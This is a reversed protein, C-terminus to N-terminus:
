AGPTGKMARIAAARDRMAYAAAKCNQIYRRRRGWKVADDCRDAEDDCCQAADDLAKDRIVQTPGFGAIMNDIQTLLGSLDGLPRWGTNAPYHRERLTDALHLAYQYAREYDAIRPDDATVLDQQRESEPTESVDLAALVVSEGFLQSAHKVAAISGALVVCPEDPFGGCDEDEASSALSSTVMVVRLANVKVAQPKQREAVIARLAADMCKARYQDSQDAWGFDSPGTMATCIIKALALLEEDTPTTM